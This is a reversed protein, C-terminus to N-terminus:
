RELTWRVTFLMQVEPTLQLKTEVEDLLRDRETEIAKLRDFHTQKLVTAKAKLAAAGRKLVLKDQLGLSAARSAKEKATIEKKLDDLERKFAAEADEQWHDLKESEENLFLELRAQVQETVGMERTALAQALQPPAEEDAIATAAAPVRALREATDDAIIEGDDTIAVVIVEDFVQAPTTLVLRIARLWGSKGIIQEVDGYLGDHLSYKFDLRVAGTERERALSLLQMALNEPDDALRFFHFDKELAIPWETTYTRGDHDFREAHDAHFIAEPLEAEALRLLMRKQETLERRIKAEGSKLRAIVEDDMQALLKDRADKKASDIEVQLKEQLSDFEANIEDQTRCRQLIELIAREVDVGSEIAGLFDDSAGFVGQFLKFKDGLLQLVRAEAQNKTNLFNVVTVDIIQGYRHCRGIRQEVRQPNWPMDYNIVVSCFQANIGEAGSETAILITKEDRFAEIIAAKMDATKSGSIAEGGKHRLRWADYLRKSEPDSNAGNLLAIEGAFGNDSLYQALHKQTRVSETFILCKRQGGKSVVSDLIRPLQEALKEGKANAGVSRALDRYQKLEEIEAWLVKPDVGALRDEGDGDDAGADRWEDVIVEINEIDDLSGIDPALAGELRAIIKDLTAAIAFSSSGLTRRMVMTVLQRGTKAFAVTDDRQLWASVKDYLDRELLTPTFDITVPERATYRILGAQQVQRRLTRQCIPRLRDGLVSLGVEDRRGSFEARFAEESGFFHDDIVSVLGYLELLNNQLPTATLLLKTRDRFTEKLVAARSTPAARYVNRLKHAEDFVVLEWPVERLRIALRAAYEYSLIVIASKTAWPRDDGAKIFEKVRKDDLIRTPLSFKEALESAWQKRLSAPVVLLIHRRREWWRQAIVLAAEITKGLGVEDALVAGKSLPSRMAFLAADVQHPNLDVRAAALSQAVTGGDLGQRTLLHAFLKAQHPSFKPKM